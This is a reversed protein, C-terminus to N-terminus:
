FSPLAAEQPCTCTIKGDVVQAPILIDYYANGQLYPCTPGSIRVEVWITLGDPRMASITHICRPTTALAAVIEARTNAVVYSRDGIRAGLAFFSAAREYDNVSVADLWGRIAAEFDPDTTPRPSPLRPSLPAATPGAGPPRTGAPGTAGDTACAAVLVIFVMMLIFRQRM